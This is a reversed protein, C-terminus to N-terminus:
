VKIDLANRRREAGLRQELREKARRHRRDPNNRRDQTTEKGLVKSTPMDRPESRSASKPALDLQTITSPSINLMM